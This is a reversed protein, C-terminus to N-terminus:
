PYVEEPFKGCPWLPKVSALGARHILEGTATILIEYCITRPEEPESQALLEAFRVAEAELNSEGTLERHHERQDVRFVLYDKLEPQM